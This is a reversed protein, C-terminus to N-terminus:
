KGNFSTCCERVKPKHNFLSEDIQVMKGPGGLLISTSLLKTSCVERLWQYVACATSETVELSEATVTVMHECSWHHILLLWKKLTLKSKSFFSGERISCGKNCM